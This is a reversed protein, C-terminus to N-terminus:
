PYRFYHRVKEVAKELPVDPINGTWIKLKGRKLVGGRLESKRKPKM